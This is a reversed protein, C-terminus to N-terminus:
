LMLSRCQSTMTRWQMSQSAKSENGSCVYDEKMRSEPGHQRSMSIDVGSREHAVAIRATVRNKM